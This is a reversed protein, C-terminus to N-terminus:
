ENHLAHNLVQILQFPDGSEILVHANKRVGEPSHKFSIAYRSQQFMSVDNGDDGASVINKDVGLLSACFHVAAGKSAEKASVQVLCHRSSYADQMLPATVDGRMQVREAVSLALAEEEFFLRVAGLEHLPIDQTAQIGIWSEARKSQRFLLHQQLARSFHDKTWYIIDGEKSYAVIGFDGYMSRLENEIKEWTDLSLTREFLTIDEPMAKAVVGNLIAIFYPFPLSRLCEKTWLLERGTAFLLAWGEEYYEQLAQVLHLNLLNEGRQVITGDIDLALLGRRPTMNPFSKIEKM